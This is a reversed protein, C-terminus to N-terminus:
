KLITFNLYLLNVKPFSELEKKRLRKLNNYKKQELILDNYHENRVKIELLNSEIKNGQNDYIHLVVDLRSHADDIILYYYMKQERNEYLKKFKDVVSEFAIRERETYEYFTKKM